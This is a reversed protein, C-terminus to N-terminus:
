SFDDLYKSTHLSGPRTGGGSGTVKFWKRNRRALRRLAVPGLKVGVTRTGPKAFEVTESGVQRLRGNLKTYVRLNISGAEDSPVSVRLRKNRVVGNVTNSRIELQSSGPNSLYTADQAQSPGDEDAVSAEVKIWKREREAFLDLANPGIPVQILQSGARQIPFTRTGIQRISGNFKTFVRLTVTSAEDGTVSVTLSKDRVVGKLTQNVISLFVEARYFDAYDGGFAKPSPAFLHAYTLAASVSVGSALLRRILTRRSLGGDRYAAVMEQQSLSANM